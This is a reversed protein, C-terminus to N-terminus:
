QLYYNFIGKLVLPLSTVSMIWEIKDWSLSDFMAQVSYQKDMLHSETLLKEISKHQYNARQSHNIPPEFGNRRYRYHRGTYAKDVTIVIASFGSDEARKILIENIRRDKFLYMQCWKIGKPTARAIDEISTNSALSLIMIVNAAESALASATEGDLHAWKHFATPSLCIPMDVSKGLVVTSLDVKSVDKFYRPRLWYSQFAACNNRLTQESGSGGSYYDFVDKALSVAAHAEFDAVCVPSSM